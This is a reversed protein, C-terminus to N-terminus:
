SIYMKRYYLIKHELELRKERLEYIKVKSVNVNKRNKVFKVLM